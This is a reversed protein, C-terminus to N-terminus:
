DTTLVKPGFWRIGILGLPATIVISLVAIALIINGSVLGMSLPIAGIAAQVTAKPIYAIMCFVKENMNLGSKYLSILVGTSRGVLGIAIIGIGLLGSSFIENINVASGILVFLIIEALVWVKNFKRALRHALIDYKELIVFGM